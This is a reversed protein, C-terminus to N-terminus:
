MMSATTAGIRASTIIDRSRHMGWGLYRMLMKEDTHGTFEERIIREDVGAAALAQTMGRRLSREEVRHHEAKLATMCRKKREQADGPDFLYKERKSVLMTLTALVNDRLTAPTVGAVSTHCTFPQRTLGVTKGEVIRININLEVLMVNATQYLDADGPRAATLMWLVLYAQDISVLRLAAKWVIGPSVAFPTGPTEQAQMKKLTRMGMKFTRSAKLDDLAMLRSGLRHTTAWTNVEQGGGRRPFLRRYELYDLATRELKQGSPAFTGLANIEALLVRRQEHTEKTFAARELPHMSQWELEFAVKAEKGKNWVQEHVVSTIYSPVAMVSQRATEKALKLLVETSSDLTYM